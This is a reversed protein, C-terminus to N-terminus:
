GSAATAAAAAAMVAAASSPVSSSSGSLTSRQDSSNLVQSYQVPGNSPPVNGGMKRRPVTPTHQEKMLKESRKLLNLTQVSVAGSNRSRRPRYSRSWWKTRGALQREYAKKAKEHDPMDQAARVVDVPVGGIESAHSPPYFAFFPPHSVFL